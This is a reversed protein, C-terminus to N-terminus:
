RVEILEEKIGKAILMEKASNRHDGQLIILGKKSTGGTGLTTKLDRTIAAIDSRDGLGTVVTTPKKFKRFEKSIVVKTIEKDLEHLFGEISGTDYYNESVVITIYKLRNFSPKTSHEVFSLTIKTQLLYFLSQRRITPFCSHNGCNFM